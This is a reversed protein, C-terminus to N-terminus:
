GKKVLGKLLNLQMTPIKGTSDPSINVLFNGNTKLTQEYDQNIIKIDKYVDNSKYGWSDGLTYVCEYKRTQYTAAIFRDTYNSYDGCIAPKDKGLRDNVVVNPNLNYIYTLFPLIQLDSMTNSWDGDFWWIDPKYKSQLDYLQPLMVNCIYKKSLKDSENFELFSYYVGFKLNKARCAIALEGVIDRKPGRQVSDWSLSSPADFIKDKSLMHYQRGSPWLCFGDHHKATIIIYKAGAEYFHNVWENADFNEVKFQDAFETYHMNNYKQKHYEKTELSGSPPRYDGSYLRRYYWESGNKIQRKSPNSDFAPVSYVGFHIIIGLNAENFWSPLVRNYPWM